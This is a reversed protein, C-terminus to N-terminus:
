PVHLPGKPWGVLLVLDLDCCPTSRIRVESHWAGSNRVELGWPSLDGSSGLEADTSGWPGRRSVFCSNRHQPPLFPALCLLTCSMAAWLPHNGGTHTGSSSPRNGPSCATLSWDSVRSGMWICGRPSWVERNGLLNWPLSGWINGNLIIGGVWKQFSKFELTSLTTRPFISEHGPLQNQVTFIGCDTVSPFLLVVEFSCFGFSLTNNISFIKLTMNFLRLDLPFLWSIPVFNANNYSKM